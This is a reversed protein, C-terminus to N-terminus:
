GFKRQGFQRVNEPAELEPQIGQTNLYAQVEPTIQGPSFADVQLPDIAPKIEKQKTEGGVKRYFTKWSADLTKIKNELLEREGALETVRSQLKTFHELNLKNQLLKIDAVLAQFTSIDLSNKLIESRLASKANSIIVFPLLCAFVALFATIFLIIV